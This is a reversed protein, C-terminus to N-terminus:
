KTDGRQRGPSGQSKVPGGPFVMQLLDSFQIGLLRSSHTLNAVTENQRNRFNASLAHSYFRQQWHDTPLVFTLAIWLDMITKGIDRVGSLKSRKM